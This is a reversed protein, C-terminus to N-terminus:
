VTEKAINEMIETFSKGSNALAKELAACENPNYKAVMGLRAKICALRLITIQSLLQENERELGSIYEVLGDDASPQVSM